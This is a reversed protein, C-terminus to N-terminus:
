DVCVLGNRPVQVKCLILADSCRGFTLNCVLSWRVNFASCGLLLIINNQVIHSAFIFGGNIGAADGCWCLMPKRWLRGSELNIIANLEPKWCHWTSLLRGLGTLGNEEVNGWTAMKCIMEKGTKNRKRRKGGGSISIPWIEHGMVWTVWWVSSGHGVHGIVCSGHGSYWKM